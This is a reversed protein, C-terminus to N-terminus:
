IAMRRAIVSQMSHSSAEPQPKIIAAWWGIHRGLLASSAPQSFPAVQMALRILTAIDSIASIEDKVSNPISAITRRGNSACRKLCLYLRDARRTRVGLGELRGEQVTDVAETFHGERDKTWVVERELGELASTSVISRSAVGEEMWETLRPIKVDGVVGGGREGRNRGARVAERVSEM